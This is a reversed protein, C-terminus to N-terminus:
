FDHFNNKSFKKQINDTTTHLHASLDIQIKKFPQLTKNKTKQQKWHTKETKSKCLQLKKLMFFRKPTLFCLIPCSSCSFFTKPDLKTLLIKKRISKQQPLYTSPHTYTHSLSSWLFLQESDHLYIFDTSIKKNESKITCIWYRVVVCPHRILNKHSSMYSSPRWLFLHKFDHLYIFYM